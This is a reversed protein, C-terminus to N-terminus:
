VAQAPIWHGDQGLDGVCDKWVAELQKGQGLKPKKFGIHTETVITKKGDAEEIRVTQEHFEVGREILHGCVYALGTTAVTIGVAAPWNLRGIFTGGKVGTEIDLGFIGTILGVAAKVGGVVTDYATKIGRWIGKFFEAVQGLVAQLQQALVNLLDGIYSSAKIYVDAADNRSEAPLAEITNLVQQSAAGIADSAAKQAKNRQEIIREKWAEADPAAQKLKEVEGTFEGMITQMTYANATEIEVIADEGKQTDEDAVSLQDVTNFLQHAKVAHVYGFDGSIICQQLNLTHFRIKREWGPRQIRVTM